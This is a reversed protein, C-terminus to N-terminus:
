QIVFQFPLRAQTGQYQKVQQLQQYWLYLDGGMEAKVKEEEEEELQVIIQEFLSLPKQKPFYRIKYDETVGAKEAAIKVAEDFGGLVDVLKRDLAQQGSWVRGSAVSKLDTLPIGRGEAAKTTFTEYHEDLNRQWYNREGETLPRTVTYMEGFNGTRVEDFTIGLKNGLFGSMDFMMGFIGISGTITHPQAVITDCSMAMYYGGSAALDGMSAIVPKVKKALNIERWMMDSARFEGGPSNIRLVIAKVDKDERAKRIEEVYTDAGIIQQQVDAKGPMITGDAVIVAIENKSSKYETFSKKYKAYTVFKLDSAKDAGVRSKLEDHFEDRYFLSDVLGNEQAIRANRIEMNDSFSKLKEVPINRGESIRNLVHGYLSGALETLQLRNEPSMKELMFPEVASKFEGVRFVEPKIELKDFLRKFFSIEITLGNFEIDGEPNLYIKDSVSALYYAGESMTETYSVVWKGSKRFDLLSTRIEELTSFGAMPYSVDLYIGAIKPDNKAHEITQKLEILGISQNENGGFPFGAFPNDVQMERFQANLKLHLISKDQIVVESEASIAGILGILLLFGIFTFIVLAVFSALLTKWFNM